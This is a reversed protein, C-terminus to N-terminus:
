STAVRSNVELRMRIVDECNAIVSRVRKLTDIADQRDLKIALQYDAENRTRRLRPMLKAIQAAYMKGPKQNNGYAIARGIIDAHSSEGDIRVHNKPKEFTQDVSHLAAYYGRSIASRSQAENETEDSILQEAISLIDTPTCSM